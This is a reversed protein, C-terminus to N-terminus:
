LQEWINLSTWGRSSM